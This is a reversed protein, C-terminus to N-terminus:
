KGKGCYILTAGGVQWTKLKHYKLVPLFILEVQMLRQRFTLGCLLKRHASPVSLLFVLQLFESVLYMRATVLVPKALGVDGAITKAMCGVAFFPPPCAEQEYSKYIIM